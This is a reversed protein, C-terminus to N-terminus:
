NIVVLQFTGQFKKSCTSGESIAGERVYELWDLTALTEEKTRYLTAEKSDKVWTINSNRGDVELRMLTKDEVMLIGYKPKLMTYEGKVPKLITKVVKLSLTNRFLGLWAMVIHAEEITDYANSESSEDVWSISYNDRRLIKLFTNDETELIIFKTNSM